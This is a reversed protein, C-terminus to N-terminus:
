LQWGYEDVQLVHRNSVLVFPTKVQLLEKLKEIFGDIKDAL